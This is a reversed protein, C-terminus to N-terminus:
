QKSKSGARLSADMFEDVDIYGIAKHWLRRENPKFIYFYEKEFGRIDKQIFLKDTIKSGSLKIIKQLFNTKKNEMNEFITDQKYKSKSIVKFFMGIIQKTHWIEVVFKKGISDYNSAFREIFLKAYNRLISDSDDFSIPQFLKEFGKHKMIFPIVINKSYDVLTKEIESLSFLKYLSNDIKILLENLENQTNALVVTDSKDKLLEIKKALEIINNSYKYPFSFREADNIQQEIMIGATSSTNLIYYAFLTSNILGAILYYNDINKNDRIKISTIKDTFLIKKQSIASVSELRTNVTEKVLLMPPSFMDKCIEGNEIYIYGVEKLGLKNHTKNIFFQRIEKKDLDLFDWDELDTVDIKKDGDVRKIGQKILTNGELSDQISKNKKLRTIFNFDLYSGYVLVKWLWDNNKLRDQRVTKVDHRNVTFIKFMSFFRSPKLAIHEILNEDTNQGYANSFFLICAPAIAENFIERRVPALEFVRRVLYNNLFYRRFKISQLNYLIKSTVVLACKTTKSSFDGSRLLFAQAIEKNGIDIKRNNVYEIYLTKKKENKGRMWPPNGVIFDFKKNKFVPISNFKAKENFFDECFFNTNLLNPFKFTSIEPPDIENLLTLYISFIAVQVASEDKDVGFINEEVINKIAEKFKEKDNKFIKKNQKKYQEILIRLTEVLFIGSGCSPDLVKCNYSKNKDVYENVTESLIYDVLFLPTYYVGSKSQSEIGVFREYVNSIFETPIVSFDYLNFLSLQGSGIDQSRLLRILTNYAEDPIINYEEKTIPFLDGNFGNKKDALYDFFKRTKKPNKLLNCFKDNTWKESKEEFKLIVERDILYRVFIIKGLLANTIKINDKTNSFYGIILNRADKINSLLKYDVRNGYNLEKAYKEWTKNTVLEFYTFDNLKEDGGIKALTDLEKEYKFGNFIDVIGKKFIIIIPSENFNWIKKYLDKDKPNEFFLILPKDNICFFADPKIDNELIKAIRSPFKLENKWTHENTYYLGKSQDINLRLFVEDLGNRM